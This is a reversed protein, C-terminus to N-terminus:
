REPLVPHALQRKLRDDSGEKSLFITQWPKTQDLGLQGDRALELGAVLTSALASRTRFSSAKGVELAPLFAELASGEPLVALRDRIRAISAQVPWPTRPPLRYADALQDPLALAVLCARMLETLDGGESPSGRVGAEATGRAWAHIGLQQRRELWDAAAQIHQRSLLQRRLGEAERAAAQAEPGATPLILRARLETLTAAMVLWDAWRSLSSAMRRAGEQQLAQELAAAFAEILAVISLRSLDLRQTRALELLWDLPGEFGEVTLIPAESERRLALPAQEWETDDPQGCEAALPEAIGTM